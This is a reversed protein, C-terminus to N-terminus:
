MKEIYRNIHNMLEDLSASSLIFVLNGQSDHKEITMDIHLVLMVPQGAESIVQALIVEISDVLYVPLTTQLSAELIDAIASICANLIINGLECMAEQEYEALDEVSADSGMMDRVIDLARQETFLLMAEAELSGSFHQRVVGIRESHLSLTAANIESSKFFEVRPVSLGVQSGVIESLSSAARGAGINFIEALADLQDASFISM